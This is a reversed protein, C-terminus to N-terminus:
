RLMDLGAVIGINYTGVRGISFFATRSAQLVPFDLGHTCGPGTNEFLTRYITHKQNTSIAMEALWFGVMYYSTRSYPGQSPFLGKCRQFIQTYVM